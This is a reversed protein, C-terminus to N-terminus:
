DAPTAALLDALRATLALRGSARELDRYAAAITQYEVAGGEDVRDHCAATQATGAYDAGPQGPRDAPGPQGAPGSRLLHIVDAGCFRKGIVRRAPSDTGM